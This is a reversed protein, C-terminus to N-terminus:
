AVAEVEPKLGTLQLFRPDSRIPEFDAEVKAEEALSPTFEIAKKLCIIADDFSGKKSDYCAKNYWANPYNPDSKLIRDCCAIADDYRAMNYYALSKGNEIEILEPRLELIRSFVVLADEARGLALLLAGRERLFRIDTPSKELAKDVWALAEHTEGLRSFTAGLLWQLEPNDPNLRLSKQYSETSEELRGLNMLARGMNDWLSWEEPELEGARELCKLAEENKGQNILGMARIEWAKGWGPSLNSAKTSLKVVKEFEGKMLAIRAKNLWPLEFSPNIEIAKDLSRIADDFAKEGILRVGENNWYVEDNFLIKLGVFELKDGLTALKTRLKEINAPDKFTVQLVFGEKMFDVKVRFRTSNETGLYFKKELDEMTFEIIKYWGGPPGPPVSAKAGFVVKRANKGIGKVFDRRDFKAYVQYEDFEALAVKEFKRWFNTIPEGPMGVFFDTVGKSTASYKLYLTDFQDGKYVLNKEEDEFIVGNELLINLISGVYSKHDVLDKMTGAPLQSMLNYRLLAEKPVSPFELLTVLVRLYDSWLTKVKDAIDHHGIKRVTELEKLVDDLVDISLSIKQGAQKNWRRYMYHSVLNVEYPSGGTLLHM